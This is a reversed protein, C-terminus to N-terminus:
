SGIRGAQADPPTACCRLWLRLWYGEQRLSCFHLRIGRGKVAIEVKGREVELQRNEMREDRFSRSRDGLGSIEKRGDDLAPAVGAAADDSPQPPGITEADPVDLHICDCCSFAEM